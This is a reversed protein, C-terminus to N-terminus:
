SCMPNTAVGSLLRAATPGLDLVAKVEVRLQVRRDAEHRVPSLPLIQEVASHGVSHKALGPLGLPAGGAELADEISSAERLNALLKAWRELDRQWAAVYDACMEATITWLVQQAAGIAKSIRRRAAGRGCTRCVGSSTELVRNRYELFRPWYM